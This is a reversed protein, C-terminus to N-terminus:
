LFLQEVDVERNLFIMGKKKFIAPSESTYFKIIGNKTCREDIERHRYLYDQLKEAVIEGQSIIRIHPPIFKRISKMLLPYHTCGLIVTDIEPDKSLLGEINKRVFYDTGPNDIENSEVLQVWMPCAEQVTIIEPYLKKIEIPYSESSVTGETGLIGVHKTHTISDIAEISPRIVGLVRRHPDIEPLDKQQINRLAKASATNCALIVLHCGMDFLKKVAQLTYTYVVEFSRTGYPTRANDGFYIFDYRPLKKKIAEFITLGGIGSDFIGIPHFTTM